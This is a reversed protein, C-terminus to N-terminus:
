CTGVELFAGGAQDPEDGHLQAADWLLATPLSGTRGAPNLGM